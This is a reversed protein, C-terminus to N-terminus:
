FIVKDRSIIFEVRRNKARGAETSNNAVPNQKGYGEVSVNKSLVGKSVLYNKLSSARKLSLNASVGRVILYNKISNARKLSLNLNYQETGIYDTHGDIKLKIDKNEALAKGLTNLSEKVGEKVKSSDFDFLIEVPMSLVLNNGDKRIVVGEENFVIIDELPKETTTVDELIYQTESEKITIEKFQGQTSTCGAIVGVLSLVMFIKKM